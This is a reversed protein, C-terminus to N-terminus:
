ELLEALRGSLVNLSLRKERDASGICIELSDSTGDAYFTASAPEGSCSRAKPDWILDRAEAVARHRTQTAAEILASAEANLQLEPSPTPRGSIVIGTMLAIVALAVLVEFLTFGARDPDPPLTM